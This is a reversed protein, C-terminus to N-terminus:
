KAVLAAIMEVPGATDWRRAGEITGSAKGTTPDIFLIPNGTRDLFLSTPLDRVSFFLKLEGTTDLIVPFAVKHTAVFSKAEVPDNDTSVGVVVLDSPDFNENLTALSPMEVACEACWSAFFHLLVVKGEFSSLSARSGNTTVFDTHLMTHLAQSNEDLQRSLSCGSLVISTLLSLALLRSLLSHM